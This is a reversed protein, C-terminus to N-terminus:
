NVMHFANDDLVRKISKILEIVKSGPKLGARQGALRNIRTAAYSAKEVPMGCGILATVIGTITDGTGGIPELLPLDPSSTTHVVDGKVAIFDTKGKVLLFDPVNGSSYSQCIMEPINEHSNALLYNSIYAPHMAKSDALFKLEATDPTFLNFKGANGSAKAAYLSGADAIMFPKKDTKAASDCIKEMLTVIPQLYHMTIIAPQNKLIIEGARKYIKRSGMANGIDGAVVLYPPEKGYFELTEIVASMMAGSGMGCPFSQDGVIISNDKLFGKGETLPFDKLPVTGALLIM